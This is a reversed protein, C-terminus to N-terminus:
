KQFDSTQPAQNTSCLSIQTITRRSGQQISQSIVQPNSNHRDLAEGAQKTGSASFHEVNLECITHTSHVRNM